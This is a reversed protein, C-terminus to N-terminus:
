SASLTDTAQQLYPAVLQANGSDLVETFRQKLKAYTAHVARQDPKYQKLSQDDNSAFAVKRAPGERDPFGLAQLITRLWLLLKDRFWRPDDMLMALQAYAAVTRIDRIAKVRALAHNKEFPYDRFIEEVVREVVDQEHARMQRAAEARQKATPIVRQFEGLEDDSLFRGEAAAFLNKLEPHLRLSQTSPVDPVKIM